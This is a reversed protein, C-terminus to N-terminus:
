EIPGPPPPPPTGYGGCIRRTSDVACYCAGSVPGCADGHERSACDSNYFTCSRAEPVSTSITSAQLYPDEPLPAPASASAWPLTVALLLSSVIVWRSRM